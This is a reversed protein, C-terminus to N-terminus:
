TLAACSSEGSGSRWLMWALSPAAKARVGDWGRPAHLMCALTARALFDRHRAHDYSGVWPECTIDFRAHWMFTGSLMRSVAMVAIYHSTLAKCRGGM